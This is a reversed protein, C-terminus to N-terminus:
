DEEVRQLQWCIGVLGEDLHADKWRLGLTDGQRLGSSLTLAFLSLARVWHESTHVLLQQAEEYASARISPPPVSGPRAQAAANSAM